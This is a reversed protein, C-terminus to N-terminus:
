CELPRGRRDDVIGDGDTDRSLRPRGAFNIVVQRTYHPDRDRACYVFSGNQYNTIGDKTMQLYQRNRFSRWRITSGDAPSTFVQLIRDAGDLRADRNLDTFVVIGDHWHGSCLEGRVTPCITVTVRNVVAAYRAYHIASLLWNVTVTAHNRELIRTMAPTVLGFVIVLIVLSALAEVLTVGRRSYRSGM